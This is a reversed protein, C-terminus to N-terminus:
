QVRNFNRIVDHWYVSGSRLDIVTVIAFVVQDDKCVADEVLADALEVFEEAAAMAADADQYIVVTGQAMRQMIKGKVSNRLVNIVVRFNENAFLSM